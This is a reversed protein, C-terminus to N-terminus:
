IPRPYAISHSVKVLSTIKKKPTMFDAEMDTWQCDWSEAGELLTALDYNEKSVRKKPSEKTTSPDLGDLLTQMFVDEEQKMDKRCEDKARM